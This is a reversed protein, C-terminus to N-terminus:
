RESVYTGPAAELPPYAHGGMPPPEGRRLSREAMWEVWDAWWSGRVEERTAAWDDPDTTEKGDGAWVKKKSRLTPPNVIGTIHGESSLVYRVPCTVLACTKFTSKWPSIHDQKAGVIYAPQRITGLDVSRGGMNLQKQALKNHLYLERLYFSCMAEPLRTSDGNWFLMDSKPPPQGFLYNNVVYRWILADSNLLRFTTALFKSDLFGSDKMM